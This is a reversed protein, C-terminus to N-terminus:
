LNDNQSM